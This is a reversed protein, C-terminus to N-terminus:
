WSNFRVSAPASSMRAAPRRRRSLATCRSLPQPSPQGDSRRPVYRVPVFLARDSESAVLRFSTDESLQDYLATRRNVLASRIGFRAFLPQYEGRQEARKSSELLAIPYHHIRSDVFVHRRPRAWMLYGGDELTNFMPDPSADIASLLSPSMPAWWAVQWSQWRSVAVALAVMFGVSLLVPVARTRNAPVQTTVPYLKTCIPAALLTFCGVNRIAMVAAISLGAAAILLVRTGTEASDIARWRRLITYGLGLLGIWLLVDGIQAHRYELIELARSAAITDLSPALLALRWARGDPRDLLRWRHM